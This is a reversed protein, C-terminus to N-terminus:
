TKRDVPDTAPVPPYSEFPDPRRDASEVLVALRAETTELWTIFISTLQRGRESMILYMERDWAREAPSANESLLFPDYAIAHEHQAQRFRFETRVLELVAAPGRHMTLLVRVQFEPDMPRQVPVYPKDLWEEFAQRGADSILYLKADPGSTRPDAVTSAWGREVLRGLQRYIQSTAPSYGITAGGVDLWKWIDYGTRPRALLLGLAIADLRKIM